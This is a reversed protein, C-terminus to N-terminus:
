HPIRLTGVSDRGIQVGGLKIQSGNTITQTQGIDYNSHICEEAKAFQMNHTMLTDNVLIAPIEHPAGEAQNCTKTMFCPDLTYPTIGEEQKWDGSYATSWHTGAEKTGYLPKLMKLVYGKYFSRQELPLIAYIDRSFTDKSQLLVPTTDKTWVPYVKIATFGILIRISAHSVTLASPVIRNKEADQCGQITLRAKPEEDITSFHKLRTINRTGIIDAHSHVADALVLSFARHNILGRVEKNIANIRVRPDMADSPKIEKAALVHHVISVGSVDEATQTTSRTMLPLIAILSSPSNNEDKIDQADDEKANGPVDDKKTSVLL